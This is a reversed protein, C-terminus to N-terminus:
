ISPFIVTVATGKNIQSKLSINGGMADVFKKVLRLGLGTGAKLGIDRKSKYFPTFIYKLDEEAIGIGNDIIEIQFTNEPYTIVVEITSNEPSFKMANVLIHTIIQRFLNLDIM